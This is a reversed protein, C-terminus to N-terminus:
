AERLYEILRVIAEPNWSSNPLCQPGVVIAPINLGAQLGAFPGIQCLPAPDKGRQESGHLFVVLPWSGAKDPWYVVHEDALGEDTYRGVALVGAGLSRWCRSTTQGSSNSSRQHRVTGMAQDGSIERKADM